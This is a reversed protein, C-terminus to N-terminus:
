PHRHHTTKNRTGYTLWINYGGNPRPEIRNFAETPQSPQYISQIVAERAIQQRDDQIPSYDPVSNYGAALGAAGALAIKQWTERNVAPDSSCGAMILSAAAM